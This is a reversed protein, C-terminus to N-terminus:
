RDPNRIICAALVPISPDCRREVAVLTSVGASVVDVWGLREICQCGKENLWRFSGRENGGHLLQPLISSESADLYFARPEKTRRPAQPRHGREEFRQDVRWDPHEHC